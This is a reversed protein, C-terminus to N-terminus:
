DGREILTSNIARDPQAQCVGPREYLCVQKKGYCAVRRYGYQALPSDPSALALNFMTRAPGALAANNVLYIPVNRNLYTYGGTAAWPVHVLGIGCAQDIQRIDSFGEILHASSKLTERFQTGAMLTASVAVWCLMSVVVLGRRGYSSLMPRVVAIVDATGIAALLLFFPLAPFVFRYEKHGIFTHSIVIVLPIVLLYPARRAGILALIAMPVTFGSWFQLYFKIFGYWPLVGYKAARGEVINVHYARWFSEFPYGWTIWDLLGAVLVVAAGSIAALMLDQTSRRFCGVAAVVLLAPALHFRFVFTMGFLVGAAIITNRSRGSAVCFLYTGWFLTAAAISETLPKHAFYVLEFWTATIGAALIAATPGALRRAFLWAVWVISLSVASLVCGIVTLYATVGGGLWATASMLGGLIGPLLWSRIGVRYEWPVVGYGFALRHGQELYQFLEDPHHINPFVAPLIVRLLFAISLIAALAQKETRTVVKGADHAFRATGIWKLLSKADNSISM